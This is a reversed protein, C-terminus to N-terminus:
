SLILHKNAKSMYLSELMPRQVRLEHHYVSLHNNLVQSLRLTNTLHHVTIIYEKKKERERRSPWRTILHLYKIADPHAVPDMEAAYRRHTCTLLALPLTLEPYQGSICCRKEDQGNISKKMKCDTNQKDHCWSNRWCVCLCM